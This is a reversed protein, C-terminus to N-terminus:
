YSTLGKRYARLTLTVYPHRRVTLGISVKGPEGENLPARLHRSVPKVGQGTSKGRM